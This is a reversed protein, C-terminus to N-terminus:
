YRSADIVQSPGWPFTPAKGSMMIQGEDTAAPLNVSGGGGGASSKLTSVYCVGWVVSDMEPAQAFLLSNTGLISYDKEPIQQVGNVWIQVQWADHVVLPTNTHIQVLPFNNTVGDMTLGGLGVVVADTQTVLQTSKTEVWKNGDFIFLVNSPNAVWVDGVKPTTPASTGFSMAPINWAQTAVEIWTGAATRIRPKPNNSNTTDVWVVGTAAAPPESTGVFVKDPGGVSKALEDIAAQVDTSTLGSGATSYSVQSALVTKGSADRQFGVFEVSDGMRLSKSITVTTPGTETFESGTLRSGNVYITLANQGVPYSFKTLTFNQQGATATQVESLGGASTSSVFKQRVWAGKGTKLGTPDIINYGDHGTRAQGVEYKFWGGNGDNPYAAGSVFILGEKDVKPLEALVNVVINGETNWVSGRIQTIPM